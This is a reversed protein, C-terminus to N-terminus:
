IWKGRFLKEAATVYKSISVQQLNLRHVVQLIINPIRGNYKVEIIVENPQIIPCFMEAPTNLSIDCNASIARDFTIRLGPYIPSSFAERQYFVTAMPRLNHRRM